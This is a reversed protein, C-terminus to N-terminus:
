EILSQSLPSELTITKGSLYGKTKLENPRPLITVAGHEVQNMVIISRSELWNKWSTPIQESALHPEENTVILKPNVANVFADHGTIDM